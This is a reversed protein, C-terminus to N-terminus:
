RVLKNRREEFVSYLTPIFVLTILTSVILGGIITIGLPRWFESGEGRFLALPLLGCVTTISTMLVPKLRARGGLTVAERVSHGRARLINIYSILVIANNVVIGVLMVLGIFVNVTFIQKTVLLAWIVGILAFPVSFLIIFPDRLSEFQSAMVMYVLIVGLILAFLLDRFSKEQEEREGGFKIFFGAPIPIEQLKQKAESVISGLDRGYINGGIKIIRQQDRREIKVPGIEEKISAVNSLRIQQGTLSTVFIKDLDEIQSRDQERLRVSIDYERGGERYQTAEEGSLLTKVTNGIASVNLGLRSAKTREILIQLEPKGEKRSIEVDRVGEVGEVIEAVKQALERSLDLDYGWIEVTLPKGGGFLMGSMPDETSFRIKAGPFSTVLPRLSEVVEQSSRKRERRPTLKSMTMGIHSGEDRMAPSRHGSERYGWRAFSSEAEPAAQAFIEEISRMVKGTEEVRTGIPLEISTMFLGADEEPFFRSGVLPFLLLTFILLAAAASIVKKRNGLAWGLLTKYREEIMGFWSESKKYLRRLPGQADEGSRLFKSSLMPILILATSLSALLALIIVLAMQKFMIGTVGKIFILPLFIAVTTLCSAIVAKGVESSGFIAAEPPREGLERHRCINDLIVIAGDVVLGIAIALSSLSIWNLTYDALYMLVFTIILSTPIACAVILSARLNRLFFLIVLIVFLIGWFLTSRLAAISLTIFESTDRMINIGVDAPLNKKLEELEKLVRKTVQVTNAGSQRYVILILGPRRNVEVKATEEKFTDKVEAVDKLYIPAGNRTAIVIDAIETIELEEPTRVLYDMKGTKLHGGPVSLNEQKLADIIQKVPLQYAELRTRNLEVLIERELGGWIMATAVGPVTKLPDVVREDLLDHLVPYSEQATVGLILIPMDSFNFRSIIPDGVDEPLFGQAMDVKDRVDNTAEDLNVGWDFKLNVSSVGEQSSSEIKDLNSVTSLQEELIETVRSEVEQPGAGAYTTNISVTPIELEPMIDIGLRSLSVLGLIIAAVFLM